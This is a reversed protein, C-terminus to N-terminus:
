LGFERGIVRPIVHRELFEGAVERLHEHEADYLTREVARRRHTSRSTWRAGTLAGAAILTVYPPESTVVLLTAVLVIPM